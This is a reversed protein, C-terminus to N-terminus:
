FPGIFLIGDSSSDQFAVSVLLFSTVSVLLDGGVAMIHLVGHSTKLGANM